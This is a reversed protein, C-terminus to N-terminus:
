KRERGYEERGWCTEISTEPSTKQVRGRHGKQTTQYYEEALFCMRNHFFLHRLCAGPILSSHSNSSKRKTYSDPEMGSTSFETHWRCPQSWWESWWQVLSGSYFFALVQFFSHPHTTHPDPIWFSVGICCFTSGYLTYSEAHRWLGDDGQAYKVPIRSSPAATPHSHTFHRKNHSPCLFSAPTPSGSTTALIALISLLATSPPRVM